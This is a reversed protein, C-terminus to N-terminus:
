KVRNICYLEINQCIKKRCEIKKEGILKHKDTKMNKNNTPSAFKFALRFDDLMIFIKAEGVRNSYKGFTFKLVSWYSIEVPCCIDLFVKAATEPFKFIFM